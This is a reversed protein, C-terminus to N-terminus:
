CRAAPTRGAARPPPSADPRRSGGCRRGAPSGRRRGARSPGRRPPRTAPVSPPRRTSRSAPGRRRDARRSRPAGARADGEHTSRGSLQHGRDVGVRQRPDEGVHDGVRHLEAQGVALDADREAPRRRPRTGSRRRRSRSRRPPGASPRRCTGGPGRSRVRAADGAGADPERDRLPDHGPETAADVQLRRLALARREGDATRGPSRASSSGRSTPDACASRRSWAGPSATPRSAARHGPRPRHPLRAGGPHDRRRRGAAAPVAAPRPRPHRRAPARDLWRPRQDGGRQRRQRHRRGLITGLLGLQSSLATATAAAM